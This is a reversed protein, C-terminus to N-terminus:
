VVRLVLSFQQKEHSALLPLQQAASGKHLVIEDVRRVYLGVTQNRQGSNQVGNAQRRIEALLNRLVVLEDKARMERKRHRKRQHAAQLMAYTKGVGAAMGFFIKLKGRKSRSEDRHIAALLADPNPRHDDNM